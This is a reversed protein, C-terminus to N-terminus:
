RLYYEMINVGEFTDSTVFENCVDSVTNEYLDMTDDLYMAMPHPSDAWFNGQYSPCTVCCQDYFFPVAIDNNVCNSTHDTTQLTNGFILNSYSSTIESSESTIDM